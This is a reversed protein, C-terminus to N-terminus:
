SLSIDGETFCGKDRQLLTTRKSCILFPTFLIFMIISLIQISFERPGKKVAQNNQRFLPPELPAYVGVASAFFSEKSDNSCAKM